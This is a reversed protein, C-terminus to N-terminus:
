QGTKLAANPISCKVKREAGADDMVTYTSDKNISKVASAFTRDYKHKHNKIAAAIQRALMSAAKIDENLVENM